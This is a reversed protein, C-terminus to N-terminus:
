VSVNWDSPSSAQLVNPSSPDPLHQFKKPIFTSIADPASKTLMTSSGHTAQHSKHKSDDGVEGM